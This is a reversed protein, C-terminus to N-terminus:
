GTPLSIDVATLEDLEYIEALDMNLATAPLLALALCAGRAGNAHSRM